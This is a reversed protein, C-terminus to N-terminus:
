VFGGHVPRFATILHRDPASFPFFGGPLYESVDLFELTDSCGSLLDTTSKFDIEDDVCLLVIKTFSLGNPLDLLRCTIHSMEGGMSYLQLTGSLRPSTSPPTWGDAGNWNSFPFLGLDELLPFSCILGFIESPQAQSLALRLSRITPLLGHFPVLSVLGSSPESGLLNLHAVNHFPIARIRGAVVPRANSLLWCSHITLTRTYHAPSNLSDPFAEAWSEVSTNKFKLRVFLHM